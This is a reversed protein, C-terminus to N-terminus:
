SKVVELEFYLSNAPLLFSFFFYYIKQTKETLNVFTELFKLYRSFVIRRKKINFRAHSYYNLNDEPKFYNFTIYTFVQRYTPDTFAWNSPFIPVKVIVKGGKKKHNEM